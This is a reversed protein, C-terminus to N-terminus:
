TGERRRREEEEKIYGKRISQPIWLLLCHRCKHMHYKFTSLADGTTSLIYGQL